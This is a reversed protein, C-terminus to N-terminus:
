IEYFDKSSMCEEVASISSEFDEYISYFDELLETYQNYKEACEDKRKM